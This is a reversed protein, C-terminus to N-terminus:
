EERYPCNKNGCTMCKNWVCAVDESLGIVATVSKSPAMMMGDTLSLGISKSCNLVSFLLRQEELSWDGYGPSFRPRQALNGTDVQSQVSDCYSEILAAGVAQAAAGEAVSELATRRIAVDVRSGLTAALLLVENCDKLHRALDSSTFRVGCDLTIGEADVTCRHKQIIHRPQVENRLKLYAIDVLNEAQKDNPRAGLYRLAEKRNYEVM